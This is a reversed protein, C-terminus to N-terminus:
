LKGSQGNALRQRHSSGRGLRRVPNGGRHRYGGRAHSGNQHPLPDHSENSVGKTHEESDQKPFVQAVRAAVFDHIQQQTQTHVLFPTANYTSALLRDVRSRPAAAIERLVQVMRDVDRRTNELGLSVRVLGPLVFRISRPIFILSEEAVFVRIPHIKMLWKVLLHACFCGYRVGIAGREVLERAVLNHPVGRLSFVFIGGRRELRPADPDRVGFLEIGEINALELLAHETLEREHEEVVAMGVRQLLMMAKGMAAIGVVNEEGSAKIKALEGRELRLLGKRAVLAGSGFPAYLKHGSFALYDIGDRTMDVRRHAVLQAGDVLLRAGYRHALRSIAGLDNYSGLVNSAGSVAVLRIRKEGHRMSENYEKLLSELQDLDIFGDGDVGLRVLSAGPIYRWPLENSHHELLSNLIVFAEGGQAEGAISRAAINLAETANSVFLIDYRDSEAGVFEACIGSVTHSIARKTEDSTCWTRRAVDWIASFTPTSAANDLNTYRSPATDTPVHLREGLVTERLRALLAEGRLGILEDGNLLEDASVTAESQSCGPFTPGLSKSFQLARAFTLINILSPTGAEFRQPAEAWIVREPSVHRVVDGGTLCPVGHPLSRRRVVLARLGLPIHLDESSLVHYDDSKIQATLLEARWPSCFIVVYRRQGLGVRELVIERARDLLATSVM